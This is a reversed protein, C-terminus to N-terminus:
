PLGPSEAKTLEGKERYFVAQVASSGGIVWEAALSFEKVERIGDAFKHPM